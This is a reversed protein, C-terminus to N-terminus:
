DVQHRKWKIFNLMLHKRGATELALCLVRAMKKATAAEKKNVILATARPTEEPTTRILESVSTSNKCQSCSYVSGVGEEM